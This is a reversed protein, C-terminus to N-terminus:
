FKQRLADILLEGAVVRDEAAFGPGFNASYLLQASPPFEEDGEWILLRLRYDGILDFQYGADGTEIPLGGLREAAARFEELRNGFAFAARRLIRGTYPALYVTGWPLERFTKWEGPFPENKGELLFRLLFTQVQKPPIEGSEGTVAGNEIRCAKGLLRVTLASGQRRVFPLRAIIEDPDAQRFLAQYHALPIEEKHNEIVM